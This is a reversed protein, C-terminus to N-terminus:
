ASHMMTEADQIEDLKCLQWLGVRKLENEVLEVFEAMMEWSNIQAYYM